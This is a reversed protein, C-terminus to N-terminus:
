GMSKILLNALDLNLIKISFLYTTFQVITTFDHFLRKSITLFGIDNYKREKFLRTNRIIILLQLGNWITWFGFDNSTKISLIFWKKNTINYVYWCKCTSLMRLDTSHSGWRQFFTNSALMSRFDKIDSTTQYIQYIFNMRM